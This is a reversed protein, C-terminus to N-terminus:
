YNRAYRGYTPPPMYGLDDIAGLPLLLTHRCDTSANQVDNKEFSSILEDHFHSSDRRTPKPMIKRRASQQLLFGGTITRASIIM